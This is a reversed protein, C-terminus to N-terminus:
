ALYGYVGRFPCPYILVRPKIISVTVLRSKTTYELYFGDKGLTERGKLGVVDFAFIYRMCIERAHFNQSFGTYVYHANKAYPIMCKQM